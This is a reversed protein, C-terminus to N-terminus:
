AASQEETLKATDAYEIHKALDDRVVQGMPVGHRYSAAAIAHTSVPLTLVAFIALALLKLAASPMIIATGLLLGCLGVTSVKGSAHLRCYLDPMRIVGLVGVVCFGIGGWLVILGIIEM